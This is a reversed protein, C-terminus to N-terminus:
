PFFVQKFTTTLTYVGNGNHVWQYGEATFRYLLGLGPPEWRFSQYGKRADLFARVKQIEPDGDPHCGVRTPGKVTIQYSLLRNNIGDAGKQQYGDGFQATLVRFGITGSPEAQVKFAFVEDVM